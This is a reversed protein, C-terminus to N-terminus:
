KVTFADDLAFTSGDPNTLTLQTSGKSLSSPLTINLTSANVFSVASAMGGVTATTGNVFGTGRVTVITGAPGIRPSVSGVGLPVSDMQIVTMGTTTALFIEDGAPTIALIKNVEALLIFPFIENLYIRERLQGTRVDIIDVGVSTPAYLLAGTQDLQVGALDGIAQFDPFNVQAILNTQADMIYPFPFGPEGSNNNVVLINGDGSAAVDNIFQEQQQGTNHVTWSDSSANWVAVTGGSDNPVGMIARTGDASGQLYNGSISDVGSDSRQTVQLTGLDLQYVLGSSDGTLDRTNVGLSIFAKNTSTTAIEFPGPTYMGDMLPGAIQIATTGLTPSDPNIIAVSHDRIDAALLKSGDPTLALGAIQKTGGLSPVSISPGFSHTSASFVDIHDGASLYLQNRYRDFLLFDFRDTTPYDTVDSLYHFGKPITTMGSPSVITLDQAGPSGKPVSFAVYQVMYPLTGLTKPTTGLANSSGIRVQTNAGSIDAGFGFGVVPVGVGGAPSGGIEGYQAALSGYTFSQPMMALRGNPQIIKINVPGPVAAPPATAQVQVQNFLNSNQGLQSGFYVTPATPFAQTIIDVPTSANVPGESPELKVLSDPVGDNSTLNQHNTSDSFAVGHDALEFVLGTNDVAAPLGLSTYVDYGSRYSPAKGVVQFTTTDITVIETYDPDLVYLNKGDPSYIAGLCAYPTASSGERNGALDFFQVGPFFDQSSNAGTDCIAFQTGAPNVAPWYSSTPISYRSFTDNASDYLVVDGTGGFLIKSHNASVSVLGGEYVNGNGYQTVEGTGPNWKNLTTGFTDNSYGSASFLLLQGNAAQYAQAALVYVNEGGSTIGTVPPITDAEVVQLSATDIWAVESVQTGVLLRSSDASLSLGAAGSVPICKIIKATAPSIVDVCNLDVASAFILQHVPDYVLGLPSDDMRVYTTRDNAMVLPAPAVSLRFSTSSQSQNTTNLGVVNITMSNQTVSASASASITLTETTNPPSPNPSISGSVGAPLNQLSFQISFGSDSSSTSFQLTASNGQDVIVSSSIQGL